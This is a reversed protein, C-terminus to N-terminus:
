HTRAVTISMRNESIESGNNMSYEINVLTQAGTREISLRKTRIEMEITGYPMNYSFCCRRGAEFFMCSSYSGSRSLTVRSKEIRLTSKVDAALTSEGERYFVITREEKDYIDCKCESTIRENDIVSEIIVYGKTNKLTM